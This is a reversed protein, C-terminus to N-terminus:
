QIQNELLFVHEFIIELGLLVQGINRFKNSPCCKTMFPKPHSTLAISVDQFILVKQIKLLFYHWWLGDYWHGIDLIRFFDNLFDKM